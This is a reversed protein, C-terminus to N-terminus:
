DRLWLAATPAWVRGLAARQAEVTNGELYRDWAALTRSRWTDIDDARAARVLDDLGSEITLSAPLGPLAPIRRALIPLGVAHADLLAIPFGEWAATHLYVDLSALADELDAGDLWGTIGIGAAADDDPGGIWTADVRGLSQRLRDVTAAFYAPDKQPSWRGMMGVRLPGPARDARPLRPILSAVNPVTTVPGVRGGLARAAIAEGPGCAAVVDTRGALLREIGRYARRTRSGIDTREFAFCHPTYVIRPGGRPRVARVYVGPFSSHAHIVDADARRLLRHLNAAARAPTRVDWDLYTVTGGTRSTAVDDGTRGSAGDGDTQWVAAPAGASFPSLVVHDIGPPSHRLYTRVAVPVGGTIRDVVHVVRRPESASMM